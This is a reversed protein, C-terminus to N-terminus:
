GGENGACPAISGPAGGPRSRLIRGGVGDVAEAGLAVRAGLGEEAEDFGAVDEEGAGSEEGGGGDKELDFACSVFTDDDVAAVEGFCPHRRAAEFTGAGGVSVEGPRQPSM